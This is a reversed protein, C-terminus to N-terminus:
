FDVSLQAGTYEEGVSISVDPTGSEERAATKDREVMSNKRVLFYTGLGLMSVGGIFLAATTSAYTSAEQEYRIHDNRSEFQAGARKAKDIRDNTMALTVVGGAIAATGVGYAAYVPWTLEVDGGGSADSESSGEDGGEDDDATESAAMEEKSESEEESSAEVSETESSAEDVDTNMAELAPMLDTTQKPAEGDGSKSLIDNVAAMRESARQRSELGVEPAEIFKKYYDSAQELEGQKESILALNFLISPKPHIAHARKLKGFAEEFNKNSYAKKGENLLKTYEQREADSLSEVSAGGEDQAQGIAPLGVLLGVVLLVSWSRCLDIGRLSFGCM